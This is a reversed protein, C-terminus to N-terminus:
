FSEHRGMRDVIQRAVTAFQEGAERAADRQNGGTLSSALERLSVGLEQSKAPLSSFNQIESLKYPPDVVLDAGLEGLPKVVRNTVRPAIKREWYEHSMAKTGGYMKFASSIYGLYTPRGQLLRPLEAKGALQRVTEWDAIWRKLCHGVTTLARLSYLDTHVPTIFYDCDLLICRNLPGVNPGVDYMVIDANVKKGLMRAVKSLACMVDYGRTKRAFSETWALPLEDEYQSLLVDGLALWISDKRLEVLGIDSVDGRGKAPNRVATWLTPANGDEDDLDGYISDLYKEDMYFSSLNCQPDSDLLLVRKGAAALADAINVTLTTKGVGGKNNFLAITRM